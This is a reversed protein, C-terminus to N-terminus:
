GVYGILWPQFAAVNARTQFYMHHGMAHIPNDGNEKLCLITKSTYWKELGLGLGM